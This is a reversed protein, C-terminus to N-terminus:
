AFYQKEIREYFGSRDSTDQFAIARINEACCDLLYYIDNRDKMGIAHHKTARFWYMDTDTIIVVCSMIDLRSEIRQKADKYKM